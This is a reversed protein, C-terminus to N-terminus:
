AGPYSAFLGRATDLGTSFATGGAAYLWDLANMAGAKAKDTAPLPPVIVSATDDFAVVGFTTAEALAHIGKLVANKVYEMPEGRMSGSKDVIFILVRQRPVDALINSAADVETIITLRDGGQPLTPTYFSELTFLPTTESSTMAGESDRCH